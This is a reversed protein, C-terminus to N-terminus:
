RVPSQACHRSLFAKQARTRCHVADGIDSQRVSFTKSDRAHEAHNSKERQESQIFDLVNKQRHTLM